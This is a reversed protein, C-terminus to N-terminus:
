AKGSPKKHPAVRRQPKKFEEAVRKALRAGYARAYLKETDTTATDRATKKSKPMAKRRSTVNYDAAIRGVHPHVKQAAARIDSRGGALALV